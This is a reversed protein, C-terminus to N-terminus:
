AASTSPVLNYAMYMLFIETFFNDVQFATEVNYFTDSSQKDTPTATSVFWFFFVTALMAVFVSFVLFHALMM